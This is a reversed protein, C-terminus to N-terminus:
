AMFSQKRFCMQFDTDKDQELYPHISASLDEERIGDALSTQYGQSAVVLIVVIAVPLFIPHRKLEAPRGELCM